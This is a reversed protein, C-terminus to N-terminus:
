IEGIAARVRAILQDVSWPKPLIEMSPDIQASEASEGRMAYGSMFLVPVQKGANRLSQHLAKGGMRPMIVDTLVLAVDAEHDHFLKLADVGDAATLVKYGHRELVRQAVRRIPEEDEVVLVIEGVRRQVV